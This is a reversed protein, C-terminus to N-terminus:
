NVVYLAKVASKQPRVGVWLGQVRFGLGLFAEAKTSTMQSPSAFRRSRVGLGSVRVGFRLGWVRM